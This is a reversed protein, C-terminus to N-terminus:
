CGALLHSPLSQATHTHRHHHHTPDCLHPVSSPIVKLKTRELRAVDVNGNRIQSISEVHKALDPPLMLATTSSILRDSLDVVRSTVGWLWMRLLLFRWFCIFLFFPPPTRTGIEGDRRFVMCARSIEEVSGGEYCAQDFLPFPPFIRHNGGNWVEFCLLCSGTKSLGKSDLLTATLM